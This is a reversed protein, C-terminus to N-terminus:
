DEVDENEENRWRTRGGRGSFSTVRGSADVDAEAAADKVEAVAAGEEEDAEHRGGGAVVGARAGAGVRPVPVAMAVACFKQLSHLRWHRGGIYESVILNM